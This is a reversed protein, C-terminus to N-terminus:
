RRATVVGVSVGKDKQSLIYNVLRKFLVGIVESGTRNGAVSNVM